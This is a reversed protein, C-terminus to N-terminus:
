SKNLLRMIRILCASMNIESDACVISDVLGQKVILIISDQVTSDESFISLNDYIWRFISEMDDATSKSCILTRAENIKGQKFLEVMQVRWESSDTSASTPTTLIGNITNQQLSNICKRLDPYTGSVYTDLTDLDFEVNEELLITAVRTTFDTIEPKKLEFAQTRSIIPPLVRHPYNCTFMFRANNSYQEILGRLASQSGVSFNDFEDLLVVKFPSCFPLIQVFNTIKERVVDITSFLSANLELVDYDHIGLENILMRCASTKGTGAPGSFFLQGIDRDEIWKTFIARQSEDSFVYDKMTKPRYKDVWLQKM